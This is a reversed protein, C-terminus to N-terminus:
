SYILPGFDTTAGIGLFILCPYIECEVGVHLWGLLGREIVEGAENYTIYIEPFLNVLIIGFSIPVLLYPEFGKKIALYLFICGIAIMILNMWGNGTFLRVIGTSSLFESLFQGLNM